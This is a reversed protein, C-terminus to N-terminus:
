PEAHSQMARPLAGDLLSREVCSGGDAVIECAYYYM